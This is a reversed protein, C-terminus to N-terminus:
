SAKGTDIRININISVAIANMYYFFFEDVPTFECGVQINRILDVFADANINASIINGINM